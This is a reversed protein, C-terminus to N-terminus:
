HINPIQKTTGPKLSFPSEVSGKKVKVEPQIEFFETRLSVRVRFFGLGEFLPVDDGVNLPDVNSDMRYFDDGAQIYFAPESKGHLYHDRAMESVDIMDKTEFIYQGNNSHNEFFERLQELTVTGDGEKRNLYIGKNTPIHMKDLAIGTMESLRQLIASTEKSTNLQEVAFRAVATKYTTQWKGDKFFVRPNALNDTHNMKVEVFSSDGSETTVKVDSFQTAFGTEVKAVEPMNSIINAVDIEFQQSAISM